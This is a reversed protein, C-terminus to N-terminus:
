PHPTPTPLLNIFGTRINLSWENWVGSYQASVLNLLNKGLWYSDIDWNRFPVRQQSDNNLLINIGTTRLDYIYLSTGAKNEEWGSFGAALIVKKSDPTWVFDGVNVVDPSLVVKNESGTNMDRINFINKEQESAYALYRGDPSLDYSYYPDPFTNPNLLAEFAGTELNLHYFGRLYGFPLLPYWGDIFGNILHYVPYLYVDNGNESIRYVELFIAFRGEQYFFGANHLSITWIRSGDDRIFKAYRNTEDTSHCYVITWDDLQQDLYGWDGVLSDGCFNYFYMATAAYETSHALSLVLSTAIEPVHTESPNPTLTPRHTLTQTLMPKTAGVLSPTVQVTGSSSIRSQSHGACATLGVLILLFRLAQGRVSM